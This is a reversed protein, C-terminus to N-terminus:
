DWSEWCCRSVKRGQKSDCADPELGLLAVEEPPEAHLELEDAVVGGADDGCVVYTRGKGKGVAM